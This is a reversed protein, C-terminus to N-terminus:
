SKFDPVGIGPGTFVVINKFQSNALGYVLKQYTFKKKTTISEM